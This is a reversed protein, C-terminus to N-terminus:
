LAQEHPEGEAVTETQYASRLSSAAFHLGIVLTIMCLAGVALEKRNKDRRAKADAGTTSSRFNTSIECTRGYM